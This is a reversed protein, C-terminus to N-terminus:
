RNREILKQIVVGLGTGGIAMFINSFLYVSVEATYFCVFSASFLFIVLVPYYWKFGRHVVFVACSIFTFATSVTSLLILLLQLQQGYPLILSLGPLGFFVTVACIGYPLLSKLIGEFDM